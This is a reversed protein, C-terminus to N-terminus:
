PRNRVQFKVGSRQLTGNNNKGVIRRSQHSTLVQLNVRKSVTEAGTLTEAVYTALVTIYNPDTQTNLAARTGNYNTTGNITIIDGLIYGHNPCPINVYGTGLDVVAGAWLNKSFAHTWTVAGDTLTGAIAYGGTIQEAVYSATVTLWDPDAQTGITYTGNYNTTGNITVNQGSVFGHAPCPINVTGNGNDVVSSNAIAITETGLFTEAVYAHPIVVVDAGGLTQAPLTYTGNYNTTGSIVVTQGAFYPPHALAPLGVTGDGNDVAPLASLTEPLALRFGHKSPWEPEEAGTTGATAVTMSYHSSPYEGPCIQYGVPLVTNAKWPGCEYAVAQAAIHATARSEMPVSVNVERHAPDDWVEGVITRDAFIRVALRRSATVSNVPLDLYTGGAATQWSPDPQWTLTVNNSAALAPTTLLCFLLILAKM